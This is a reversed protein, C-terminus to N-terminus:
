LRRALRRAFQEMRLTIFERREDLRDPQCGPIFGYGLVRGGWYRFTLSFQSAVVLRVISMWPQRGTRCTLVMGARAGKLHRGLVKDGDHSDFEVLRRRLRHFLVHLYPSYTLNYVPSGILLLDNHLLSDGIEDIVADPREFSEGDPLEHFREPLVIREIEAGPLRNELCRILESLSFDSYRDREYSAYLAVIRRGAGPKRTADNM